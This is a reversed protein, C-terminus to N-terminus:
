EGFAISIFANLALESLLLQPQRAAVFLNARNIYTTWAYPVLMALYAILYGAFAKNLWTHLEFHSHYGM